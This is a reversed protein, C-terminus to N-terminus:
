LHYFFFVPLSACIGAKPPLQSDAQTYPCGVSELEALVPKGAGAGDCLVIVRTSGKREKGKRGKKEQATGCLTVTPRSKRRRKKKRGRRDLVTHYSIIGLVPLGRYRVRVTIIGTSTCVFLCDILRAFLCIGLFSLGGGRGLPGTYLYLYRYPIM